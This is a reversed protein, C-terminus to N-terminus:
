PRGLEDYVAMMGMNHDWSFPQSAWIRRHRGGNFADSVAFAMIWGDGLLKHSLVNGM